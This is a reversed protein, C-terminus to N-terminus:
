WLAQNFQLFSFPFPSNFNISHKSHALYHVLRKIHMVSKLRPWLGYVPCRERYLLHPCLSWYLHLSKAMISSRARLLIWKAPWRQNWPLMLRLVLYWTDRSIVIYYTFYTLVSSVARPDKATNATCVCPVSTPDGAGVYFNSTITSVWLGLVLPALSLCVGPNQQGSLRASHHPLYLNTLSEIEFYVTSILLFSVWYQTRAEVHVHM